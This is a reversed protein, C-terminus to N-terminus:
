SPIWTRQVRHNSSDLVHVQDKSDIALSWPNHLQGEETGATGWVGIPRGDPSLAQIRNNGYECVLISKNRSISIGYPYYFQGPQDGQQGWADIWRPVESSLDYRQVRHNGSDAVFLTDGDITLAQPRVYKEPERGTGGWQCVFKGDSDFKQIRDSDSYEGIYYNGHRDCAVDTMFAFQGPGHGSTGGIQRSEVLEGQLTFALMRYYHTDAVLVLDDAITEGHRIALGTPKGNETSPMKWGRLWKGDRDFVQIRGTKDVIYLHDSRDITIARPIHFRGESRGWRGWVLDAQGATARGVCGSSASVFLSALSLATTKFGARRSIRRSLNQRFEDSQDSGDPLTSGSNQLM